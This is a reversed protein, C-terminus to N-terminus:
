YTFLSSLWNSMSNLKSLAAEMDSFRRWLTEERERMYDEISEQKDESDGIKEDLSELAIDSTEKTYNMLADSIRVIVGKESSTDSSKAFMDRISEPDNKLANLLKEEDVEIKAGNKYSMTTLGIESPSMGTGDVVTYFAGRLTTLLNSIYSDNRLVGSMAKEQWQEIEDDEMEDKQADTLPSFKLYIEETNKTQLKDVLENYADVFGKVKDVTSQYDQEVAFEIPTSTRENLTYTIGDFTFTNSSQKVVHGEIKCEADTGKYIDIGEAIGLASDTAAFANGSINVIDIKSLSGTVDSSLTFGKALSSYRMTVGADSYNITRMMDGITTDKSFTFTQDNIKFSVADDVFQFAHELQLNELTTDSLYQEGTFVEASSTIKPATALETIEDITYTGAVASSSASISVASTPNTFTATMSRYSYSSLMKADSLMSLYKERFNKILTNIERYADAKWELKTTQQTQKDLRAQYTAMMGKIIEETELGSAFGTVRNSRNITLSM